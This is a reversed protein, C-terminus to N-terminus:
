RRHPFSRIKPRRFGPFIKIAPFYGPFRCSIARVLGGMKTRLM